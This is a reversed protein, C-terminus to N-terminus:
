RKEVKRSLNVFAFAHQNRDDAPHCEESDMRWAEEDWAPFRADGETDDEVMTLYMCDARPMFARYVSEGGIIMVEPEGRVAELAAEPSKVTEAGEARYEAQSTLVINRRGPLPKGISEWTKRGMVVPKGMTLKKFRRLDDSLRWPLRGDRGIVRNRRGLAAILSVRM